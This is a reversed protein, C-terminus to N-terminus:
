AKRSLRHRRGGRLRRSSQDGDEFEGRNGFFKGGRVVVLVVVLAVVLVLGILSAIIGQIAPIFMQLGRVVLLAGVISALVILTWIKFRMFSGAGIVAGMLALVLSIMGSDIGFLDLVALVIAAGALSGLVLTILSIIGKAVGTGLAFFVALGVPILLWVWSEQSGPLIHLIGLGLLLGVGGALLVLRTGFALVVLGIAIILVSFTFM